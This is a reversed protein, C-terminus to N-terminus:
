SIFRKNPQKIYEHTLQHPTYTLTVIRTIRNCQRVNVICVGVTVEVIVCPLLLKKAKIEFMEVIAYFSWSSMLKTNNNSANVRSVHRCSSSPGLVQGAWSHRWLCPWMHISLEPWWPACYLQLCLDVFNECDSGTGRGKHSKRRCGLKTDRVMYWSIVGM